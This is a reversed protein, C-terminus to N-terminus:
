AEDGYKFLTGEANGDIILQTVFDFMKKAHITRLGSDVGPRDGSYLNHQWMLEGAPNVYTRVDRELDRVFLKYTRKSSVGNVDVYSGSFEKFYRYDVQNMEEVYHYFTMSNQDELDLSAIKGNLSTLMSFPSDAGYGSENDIDRFIESNNGLVAFSYIPHGTRVSSQHHRGIETLVGMQSPTTQIDFHKSNQFDFNFLPLILTGSEGVARIFSELIHEPMLKVGQRRIRMITRKISSHLLLTDGSEVGSKKWLTALNRITSDISDM